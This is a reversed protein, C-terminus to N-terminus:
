QKPLNPLTKRPSTSNHKILIAQYTALENGAPVLTLPSHPSSFGSCLFTQSVRSPQALTSGPAAQNNAFKFASSHPKVQM